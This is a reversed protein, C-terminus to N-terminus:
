FFRREGPEYDGYAAKDKLVLNDAAENTKRATAATLCGSSLDNEPGGCWNHTSGVPEPARVMKEALEKAAALTHRGKPTEEPRPFGCASITYGDEAETHLRSVLAKIGNPLTASWRDAGLVRWTSMDEQTWVAINSKSDRKNATAKAVAMQWNM